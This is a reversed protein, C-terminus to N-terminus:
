RHLMGIDYEEKQKAEVTNCFNNNQFHKQHFFHMNVYPNKCSNLSSMCIFMFTFYFFNFFLIIVYECDIVASLHCTQSSTISSFESVM